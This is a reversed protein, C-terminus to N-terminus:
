NTTSSLTPRGPIPKEKLPDTEREPLKHKEAAQKFLACAYTDDTATHCQKRIHHLPM